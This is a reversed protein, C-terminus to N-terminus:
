LILRMPRNNIEAWARPWRSEIFEFRGIWDLFEAAGLLVALVFLVAIWLLHWFEAM